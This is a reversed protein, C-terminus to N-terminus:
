AASIAYTAPEALNSIDSEPRNLQTLVGYTLFGTGPDLAPIWHLSRNCPDIAPIMRRNCYTDDELKRLPQARPSAASVLASM